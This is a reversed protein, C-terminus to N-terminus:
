YALNFDNIIEEATKSYFSRNRPLKNAGDTFEVRKVTRSDSAIGDIIYSYVLNELKNNNFLAIKNLDELVEVPLSLFLETQTKNEKSLKTKM